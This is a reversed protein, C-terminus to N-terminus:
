FKGHRVKFYKAADELAKFIRFNDYLKSHLSLNKLEPKLGVLVIEGNVSSLKKQEFVLSSLFNSDVFEAESLVIAIKKYGVSSASTIIKNLNHVELITARTLNITIVEDGKYIFCDFDYEAPLYM